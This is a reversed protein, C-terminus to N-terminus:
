NKWTQTDKGNQNEEYYPANLAVTEFTKRVCVATGDERILYIAPVDRTLFLSIGETMCYAGANEFCLVDGISLDPLPMQKVLIDNMSCLSGCVTTKTGDPCDPKGFVSIKPRKMALQQGFYVLHHMGGDVLAYDTEKNRKIDVVRAYYKGCSAAISRGLELTIGIRYTMSKLIRSFEALYEEEDFADSDFYSVPFGPGYELRDPEYGYEDRLRVLLRDLGEIERAIKKPSTKQTGSFYQIGSLVVLPADNRDRVIADIETENIGFQSDNTLRLLVPVSRGYKACLDCFTRYQTVSEVTLTGSFDPDSILGEIFAPTKYVGSIVTKESPVGLARCIAAEGPSCIEFAGVDGRIEKVVFPNAKVAYCLTCYDPLRSALYGIRKKLVGIDFTYFASPCSRLVDNITAM